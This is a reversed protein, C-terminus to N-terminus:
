PKKVSLIYPEGEFTLYIDKKGATIGSIGAPSVGERELLRGFEVVEATELTERRMAVLRDETAAFVHLEDSAVHEVEEGLDRQADVLLEGELLGEPDGELAMVREGEAVYVRQSSTLDVAVDEAEVPRGVLREPPDGHYYSVDGPGAVWFAPELGKEPSEVLAEPGGEIGTAPIEDPTELGVGSVTSGSESLAFLIESQVDVTVYTPRDGVDYGGVLRLSGIDLESIRGSEPRPLYALEPQEPNLALNEGLDEFAESRVPVRSVPSGPRAAGVDVRVVRQGDESLALVVEKEPVWVPEQLPLDVRLLGLKQESAASSCGALIALAAAVAVPVVNRRLASTM